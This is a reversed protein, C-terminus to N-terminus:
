KRPNKIYPLDEPEPTDYHMHNFFTPCNTHCTARLLSFIIETMTDNVFPAMKVYLLGQDHLPSIKHRKSPFEEQCGKVCFQVADECAELLKQDHM